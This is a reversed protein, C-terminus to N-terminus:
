KLVTLNTRSEQHNETLHQCGRVPGSSDLRTWVCGHTFIGRGRVVNCISPNKRSMEPRCQWIAVATTPRISATPQIPTLSVGCLAIFSRVLVLVFAYVFFLLPLIFSFSYFSTCLAYAMIWGVPFIISLLLFDGSHTLGRWQTAKKKARHLTAM